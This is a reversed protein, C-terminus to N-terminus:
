IWQPESREELLTVDFGFQGNWTVANKGMPIKQFIYDERDRLHFQNIQEGNAKVKFIKKTVSNIKLYEGAELQCAVGYKHGAIHVEPNQCKGYIIIEFDTDSYSTNVLAREAMGSSFDYPYGVPFDLNIQSSGPEGGDARFATVTERVWSGGESVATFTNVLFEMGPIWDSKESKCIYCRLYADGVYLKGPKLSMVDRETVELLRQLAQNYQESSAAAVSIKLSKEVLERYFRSIRSNVSNKSEYSWEYDFLDSESIRYPWSMFDISQGFNNLYYVNM